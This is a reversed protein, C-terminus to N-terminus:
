LPRGTLSRWILNLATYSAWRRVEAPTSSRVVTQSDRGGHDIAIAIAGPETSGLAEPGAVGSIGIGVEAGFRQRALSALALAEPETAPEGLPSAWDAGYPGAAVLAGAFAATLEPAEILTASLSGATLADAIAFRRGALARAIAGGITEDDVGYVDRDVHIRVEKEFPELLQEAEAVSGAKASLRLHIGDSKAYTAITPNTSKLFSRVDHEVSSEGKGLIKLTRTLIIGGVGRARLRPVAEMEWMRYMERPVGPMAIAIGGQPTTVWWGPATGLPNPLAVASPILQAQTLNRPPMPLGRRRWFARQEAELGPDVVLEEGLLKAIADRTLDDETPGLGGTFITLDSRGFAREAGQALRDLNDGFVSVYYLDIGLMALQQALYASNTDVIFGLLLETGVSIVEARM